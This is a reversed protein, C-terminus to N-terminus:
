AVSKVDHEDATPPSFMWHWRLLEEDKRIHQWVVKWERNLEERNLIGSRISLATNYLMDCSEAVWTAPMGDQLMALADWYRPHDTLALKRPREVGAADLRRLVSRASIGCAAAIVETSREGEMWMELVSTM